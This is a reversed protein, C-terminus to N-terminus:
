NINFKLMLSGGVEPFTYPGDSFRQEYILEQTDAKYLRVGHIVTARDIKLTKEKTLIM